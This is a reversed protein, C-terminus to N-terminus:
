LMARRGALFFDGDGAAFRPSPRAIRAHVAIASNRLRHGVASFRINANMRSIIGVASGRSGDHGPKVRADM